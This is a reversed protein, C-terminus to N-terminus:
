KVKISLLKFHIILIGYQEVKELSYIRELIEKDKESVKNQFVNFVDEFRKFYSLGTVESFFFQNENKRSVGKIIDGIKVKQRKKDNLRIEFIKEKKIIRDFPDEDRHFIHQPKLKM